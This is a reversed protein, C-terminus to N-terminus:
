NARLPRQFIACKHGVSTEIVAPDPSDRWVCDLPRINRILADRLAFILNWTMRWASQMSHAARESQEDPYKKSNWDIDYGEIRGPM